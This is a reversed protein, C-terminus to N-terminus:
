SKFTLTRADIYIGDHSEDRFFVIVKFNKPLHSWIEPNSADAGNPRARSLIVDSMSISAVMLITEFFHDLGSIKMFIQVSRLFRYGEEM